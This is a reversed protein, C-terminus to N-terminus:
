QPVPRRKVVPRRGGVVPGLSDRGDQRTNVVSGDKLGERGRICPGNDLTYM